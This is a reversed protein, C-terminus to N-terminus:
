YSFLFIYIFIARQRRFLCRAIKKRLLQSVFALYVAKAEDNSWVGSSLM